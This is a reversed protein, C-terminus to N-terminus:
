TSLKVPYLAQGTEFVSRINMAAKTKLEALAEESYWGTHDTFTISKLARLPHHAPLPEQEFVDLGAAAISNSSLAAALATEDVVGGRATNVLVCQPQMLAFEDTGILGKTQPTLPAHVSICDSQACLEKLSVLEVNNQAASEANAYPDYALVRGFQFGSLKKVVREAIAGYGVLGLTRGMLRYIPRRNHLNWQGARIARDKNSTMRWADLLLAVAQDSVEEQCYDPVNALQINKEILAQKNVNDYGVGYRSICQCNKMAQVVPATLPTLNVIVGDADALMKTLVTEDQSPEIYMDVSDMDAFVAREHQYNGYRNDVIVVKKKTM